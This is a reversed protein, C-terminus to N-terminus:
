VRERWLSSAVRERWGIMAAGLWDVGAAHGISQERCLAFRDQDDFISVVKESRLGPGAGTDVMTVDAGDRNNYRIEVRSVTIADVDCGPMLTQTPIFLLGILVPMAFHQKLYFLFCKQAELQRIWTCDGVKGLM